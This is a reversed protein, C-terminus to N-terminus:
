TEQKGSALAQRIAEAYEAFRFPKGITRVTRNATFGGAHMGLLDGSVLIFRSALHPRHEVVWEFLKVGDVPGPMRVDSVIVDVSQDSLYRVAAQGTSATVAAIGMRRLFAVQMSLLMEEDDVVLATRQVGAMQATAAADSPAAAAPRALPVVARPLRVEVCAGQEWNRARIEGRHERVIGHCISLGLGTGKGVEKTTYFPDFAREPDQFGPGNDLVECVVVPGDTRTRVTITGGSARERVADHANNILNLFVQQLKDRDGSLVPNSADFERVLCINHTEFEYERFRLAQDIVANVEVPELRPEQQRVFQLLGGTIRRCREIQEDVEELLSVARGPGGGDVVEMRALEVYGRIAALPNNLEHAVGSVLQGLASMKEARILHEQAEQLQRTRDAVKRELEAYNEALAEAMFNFGATLQGFEDSQGASARATFDGHRVRNSADVIARIPRLIRRRLALASVGAAGVMAVLLILVAALGQSAWRRLHALVDKLKAIQLDSLSQFEARIRDQYAYNERLSGAVTARDGARLREFVQMSRLNLEQQLSRVSEVALRERDDIDLRLYEVYKHAIEYSLHRARDELVPDPQALQRHLTEVQESNGRTLEQSLAATIRYNEVLRESERSLTAIQYVFLAAFGLALLFPVLVLITFQRAVTMTDDTLDRLASRQ